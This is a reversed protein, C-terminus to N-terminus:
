QQQGEHHAHGNCLLLLFASSITLVRSQTETEQEKNM